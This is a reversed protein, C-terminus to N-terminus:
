IFNCNLKFSSSFITVSFADTMPFSIASMSSVTRIVVVKINQLRKFKNVSLQKVKQSELNSVTFLLLPAYVRVDIIELFM